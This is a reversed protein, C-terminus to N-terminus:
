VRKVAQEVEEIKFDLDYKGPTLRRKETASGPGTEVTLIFSIDTEVHITIETADSKKVMASVLVSGEGDLDIKKTRQWVHKLESVVLEEKAVASYNAPVHTTFLLNGSNNLSVAIRLEQVPKAIGPGCCGWVLPLAVILLSKFKLMKM